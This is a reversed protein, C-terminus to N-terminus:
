PCLSPYLVSSETNQCGLLFLFLKLLPLPSMVSPAYSEGHSTLLIIGVLITASCPVFNLSCDLFFNLLKSIIINAGLCRQSFCFNEIADIFNPFLMLSTLFSLSLAGLTMWEENM